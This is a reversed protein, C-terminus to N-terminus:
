ESVEFAEGPCGIDLCEGCQICKDQDIQCGNYGAGELYPYIAGTSCIEECQGCAMCDKQNITIKM